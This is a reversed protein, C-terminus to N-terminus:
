AIVNVSIRVQEQAVAPFEGREVLRELAQWFDDFAHEFAGRSLVPDRERPIRADLEEHGSPGIAPAPHAAPVERTAPLLRLEVM